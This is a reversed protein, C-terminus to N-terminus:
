QLREGRICKITDFSETLPCCLGQDSQASACASRPRQQGCIGLSVSKSPVALKTTVNFVICSPASCVPCSVM